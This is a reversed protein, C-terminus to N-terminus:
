RSNKGYHRQMGPGTAEGPQGWGASGASAAAKGHRQQLGTGDQPAVGCDGDCTGDGFPGPGSGDLVCTGPTPNDTNPGAAAAVSTLGVVAIVAIALAGMMLGLRKGM